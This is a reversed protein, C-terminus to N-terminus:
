GALDLGLEDIGHNNCYQLSVPLRLPLPSSTLHISSVYLAFVRLPISLHSPSSVAPSFPLTIFTAQDVCSILFVPCSDLFLLRVNCFCCILSLQFITIADADPPLNSTCVSFSVHFFPPLLISPSFSSLFCFYDVRLIESRCLELQLPILRTEILHGVHLLKICFVCYCFSIAQLM